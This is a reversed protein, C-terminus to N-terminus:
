YNIDEQMEKTITVYKKTKTLESELNIVKNFLEQWDFAGREESPTNIYRKVVLLTNLIEWSNNILNDQLTVDIQKRM